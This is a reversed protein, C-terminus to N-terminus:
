RLTIDTSKRLRKKWNQHNSQTLKEKSNISTDSQLSPLSTFRSTRFISPSNRAFVNRRIQGLSRVQWRFMLRWRFKVWFVKKREKKGKKKKKEKKELSCLVKSSNRYCRLRFSRKKFKQLKLGLISSCILEKIYVEMDIDLLQIKSNKEKKTIKKKLTYIEHTINM